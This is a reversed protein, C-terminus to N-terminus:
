CFIRLEFALNIVQFENLSLKGERARGALDKVMNSIEDLGRNPVNTVIPTILGNPTAVAVSIDVNPMIQLSLLYFM